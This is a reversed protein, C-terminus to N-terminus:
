KKIATQKDDKKDFYTALIALRPDVERTPCGCDGERKPRGCKPCLGPCSEECLLKTPFGLMLEERLPEDVDLEAGHLVVYEDWGDEIQQETLMGEAAVTREFDLSFVGDVPALCRACEGHYELEARLLLRMYGANDTLAGTVHADASFEVGFLTEPTLMYDIDIKHVEGRLLPGVDIVMNGGCNAYEAGGFGYM